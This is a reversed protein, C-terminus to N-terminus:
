IALWPGFLPLPIGLGYHFVLVCFATLGLAIAVGYVLGVKQSALSAIFAVLATTPVLGLGRVTLAFVIPPPLILVLGRVPVFHFAEAPASVSRLTIAIGLGVLILALILPFFGPGMRLPTGLELGLSHYAFWAGIAVFILGAAVDQRNLKM